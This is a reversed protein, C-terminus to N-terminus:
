GGLTRNARNNPRCHFEGSLFFSLDSLYSQGDFVSLGASSGALFRSFGSVIERPFREIYKDPTM